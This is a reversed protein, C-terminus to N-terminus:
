WWQRRESETPPGYVLTVFGRMPELGRDIRLHMHNKGTALIELELGEIWWLALGGGTNVPPVYEAYDFGLRRRIREIKVVNARIESLFVLPASVQKSPVEFEQRDFAVGGRSLEVWTSEHRKPPRHPVVM